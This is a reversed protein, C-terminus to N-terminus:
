RRFAFPLVHKGQVLKDKTIAPGLTVAARYGLPLKLDIGRTHAEDLFVFCAEMQRLFPSTQLAEVRGNRDLVVVEDNSNVFVIGQVQGDKPLMDLWHQAVELNSLELIQAGVDLIVQTPQNMSSVLDLLYQADPKSSTDHDPICVVSNEPRLLHDLVLANTHNQEPLDLQRVTLPLTKRSDNTGSFGVTPNEKVEGIDWGSASLKEPFEKVEKPFVIQALFYDIASKSFRLAPFISDACHQRDELNVGVLQHYAHPLSPADSVWAQYEVSAQDSKDLHDFALRLNEDDLGTYYYSLSTLILVVDPHSFESRLSPNDKARYPVCLNTPPERNPDLGYDVRWRKQTLCFGLVGGALLGRLLLLPGKSSETWISAPGDNEVASIEQDSLEPKSIYTCVAERVALPQRFIALSSIGYDCIHKAICMILMQEAFRSLLRLRPFGGSKQEDLQISQPFKQKIAPAYKRVLGLIQHLMWRQPSLEIPCQAGMTYILEFKVNFNEDSEDVIDRSSSNFLQLLRLLSSGVEQRGLTFCEVCMLKLSLIHVPQVLLVGGEQICERCMREITEASRHNLKLSRSVPMHYVRRGLLGGLKSVLMQFMQRSQPKAVLVRVLCSGNALAAAVIPVIISSKGEGMNLQMVINDRTTPQRMQRAIDEQVDRILIGNEIEVLLSELYDFPNWNTHGQNQYEKLFEDPNSTLRALRKARHLATISCGYNILVIKWDTSLRHCYKSSLQELLFM